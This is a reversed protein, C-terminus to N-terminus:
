GTHFILRHNMLLSWTFFFSQQLQKINPFSSSQHSITHCLPREWGAKTLWQAPYANGSSTASVQTSRELSTNPPLFHGGFHLPLVYARKWLVITLTFPQGTHQWSFLVKFSLLQRYTLHTIALNWAQLEKPLRLNWNPQRPIKLTLFPSWKNTHTDM